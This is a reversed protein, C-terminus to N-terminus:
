SMLMSGNNSMYPWTSCKMVWWRAYSRFNANERGEYRGAANIMGYAAEQFLDEFRTREHGSGVFRGTFNVLTKLNHLILKNKMETDGARSMQALKIEEEQGLDPLQNAEKYFSTVNKKNATKREAEEEGTQVFLRNLKKMPYPAKTTSNICLFFIETM